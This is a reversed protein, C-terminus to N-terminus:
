QADQETTDAAEEPATTDGDVADTEGEVATEEDAADEEIVDEEEFDPEEFVTIPDSGTITQIEARSRLRKLAKSIESLTLFQVIKPRMEDLSPPEEKRRDEVKIIHWGFDDQFPKSFQGVATSNIIGPFPDALEEPLLYPLLGGEASTSRDTSYTFAIEAFETGSKLEKYLKEAEEKTDVQVHRILVEEGLQQLETQAKYMKLIATEDVQDAVLNEILINGLIRERAAHLRHRAGDDQDLGRVLAEQALLKQDILQQLIDDFLPDDVDLREGASLKGQAAAELEVESALIYEGNVVAAIAANVRLPQEADRPAEQQCGTLFVLALGTFAPFLYQKMNLCHWGTEPLKSQCM